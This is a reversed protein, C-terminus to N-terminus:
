KKEKNKEKVFEFIIFENKPKDYGWYGIYRNKEPYIWINIIGNRATGIIRIKDSDLVIDLIPVDRGNFNNIIGYNKEINIESKM